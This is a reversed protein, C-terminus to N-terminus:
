SKNHIRRKQRAINGEAEKYRKRREGSILLKTINAFYNMHGLLGEEQRLLKVILGPTFRGVNVMCQEYIRRIADGGAVENLISNIRNFLHNSHQYRRLEDKVRTFFSCIELFEAIDDQYRTMDKARASSESTRTNTIKSRSDSPSDGSGTMLDRMRREEEEKQKRQVDVREKIGELQQRIDYAFSAGRNSFTRLHSAM